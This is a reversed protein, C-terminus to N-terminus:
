SSGMSNLASEPSVRLGDGKTRASDFADFIRGITSAALWGLPVKKSGGILCSFQALWSKSAFFGRTVKYGLVVIQLESLQKLELEIERGLASRRRASPLLQTVEHPAIDFIGHLHGDIGVDNELWPSGSGAGRGEGLPYALLCSAWEAREVSTSPVNKM